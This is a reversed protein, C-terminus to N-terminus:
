TIKLKWLIGGIRHRAAKYFPAIRDYRAQTAATERDLDLETIEEDKPSFREALESM